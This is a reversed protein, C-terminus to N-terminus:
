SLSLFYAVIMAVIIFVAYVSADFKLKSEPDERIRTGLVFGLIFGLILPGAYIIM